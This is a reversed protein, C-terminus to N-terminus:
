QMRAARASYPETKSRKLKRFDIGHWEGGALGEVGVAQAAPTNSPVRLVTQPSTVAAQIDLNM